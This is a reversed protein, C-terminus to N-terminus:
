YTEIQTTRFTIGEGTPEINKVFYALNDTSLIRAACGVEDDPSALCLHLNHIRVSKVDLVSVIACQRLDGYSLDRGCSDCFTSDATVTM